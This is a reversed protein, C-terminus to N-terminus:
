EKRRIKKTARGTQASFAFFFPIFSIILLLKHKVFHFPTECKKKNKKKPQQQMEQENQKRREGHNQRYNRVECVVKFCAAGSLRANYIDFM